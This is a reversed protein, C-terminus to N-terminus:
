FILQNELEWLSLPIVMLHKSIASNQKKLDLKRDVMELEQGANTSRGVIGNSGSVWIINDNVVSLGRLSTKTGTSLIEISPNQASVCCTLFSFLFASIIKKM